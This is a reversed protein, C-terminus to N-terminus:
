TIIGRVAYTILFFRRQNKKQLVNRKNNVYLSFRTIAKYM